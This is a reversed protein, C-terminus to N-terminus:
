VNQIIMDAQQTSGKIMATFDVKDFTLIAM